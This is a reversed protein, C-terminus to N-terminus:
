SAAGFVRSPKVGNIVRVLRAEFSIEKDDEDQLKQVTLVTVLDKDKRICRVLLDLAGKLSSHGRPRDEDSLGSHHIILVYCQFRSALAQANAIFQQM